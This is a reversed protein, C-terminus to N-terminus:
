RRTVPASRLQPLRGQVAAQPRLRHLPAAVRNVLDRRVAASAPTNTLRRDEVQPVASTVFFDQSEGDQWM